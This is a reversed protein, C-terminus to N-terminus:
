RVGTIDYRNFFDWIIDLSSAGNLNMDSFTEHYGGVIKYYEVSSGNDGDTYSDHEVSRGGLDVTRSSAQTTNNFQRWFEVAVDGHEPMVVSDQTGHFHIVPVPRPPACPYSSAPNMAEDTMMGAVPAIAAFRDAHYCGVAYSMFGGNSFGTAYMRDTDIAYTSTLLDILETVFDLDDTMTKSSGGTGYPGSNWILCEDTVGMERVGEPYVLIFDHADALSRMNMVAMQTFADMCAGHFNVILPMVETGDYSSPFYMGYTREIGNHDLVQLSSTDPVQAPGTQCAILVVLSCNAGFVKM